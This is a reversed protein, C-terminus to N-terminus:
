VKIQNEEPNDLAITIENVIIEDRIAERLGKETYGQQVYDNIIDQTTKGQSMALREITANIETDGITIGNNKALQLILSKIILQELAHKRIDSDNPIEIGKAQMNAKYKNVADVLESELIIENNATAVTRDVLYEAANTTTFAGVVSLILSIKLLNKKIINM